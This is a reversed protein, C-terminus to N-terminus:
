GVQAESTSRHRGPSSSGMARSEEFAKGGGWDRADYRGPVGGSYRSFSQTMHVADRRASSGRGALSGVAWSLKRLVRHPPISPYTNPVDSGYAFANVSDIVKDM